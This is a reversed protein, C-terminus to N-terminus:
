METFNKYLCLSFLQFPQLVAVIVPNLPQAQWCLQRLRFLISFSTLFTSVELYDTSKGKPIEVLALPLSKKLQPSM